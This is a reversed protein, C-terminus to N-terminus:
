QDPAAGAPSGERPRNVFKVLFRRTVAARWVGAGGVDPDAVLEVLHITAAACLFDAAALDADGELRRHRAAELGTVARKLRGFFVDTGLEGADADVGVGDVDFHQFALYVGVVPGFEVSKRCYGASM